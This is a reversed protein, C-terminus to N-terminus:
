RARCRGYGGTREADLARMSIEMSSCASIKSPTPVQKLSQLVQMKPRPYVGALAAEPCLFM